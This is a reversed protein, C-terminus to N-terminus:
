DYISERDFAEDSLSINNHPLQAVWERFEQSREKPTARQWFLQTETKKVDQAKLSAMFDAIKRLQEDNLQDIEKKITDKLM